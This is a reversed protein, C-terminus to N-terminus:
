RDPHPDVVGVVVVKKRPKLGDSILGRFPVVQVRLFLAIVFVLSSVIILVFFTNM